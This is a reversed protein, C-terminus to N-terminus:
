FTYFNITKKKEFIPIIWGVKFGLLASFESTTNTTSGVTFIYSRDPKTWMEYIEIGAYFSAVRVKQMFLFGIFQSMYFGSSHRDYGKSYEDRFHPIDNNSPDPINIFIKHQMLGFSAHIWIGSNRWKKSVPIIKGLGASVNWYRGEFYIDSAFGTGDIVKISESTFYFPIDGFLDKYFNINDGRLKAGFMYHFNASWTWNSATKYTFGAGLNFNGNFTQALKGTPFHYGFEASIWLMHTSTDIDTKKLPEKMQADSTLCLFLLFYLLAGIKFIHKMKKFHLTAFTRFYLDRVIQYLM